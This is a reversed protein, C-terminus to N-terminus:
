GRKKPTQCPHSDTRQLTPQRVGGGASDLPQGLQAATEEPSPKSPNPPCTYINAYIHAPLIHTYKYAYISLSM